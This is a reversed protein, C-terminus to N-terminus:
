SVPLEAICLEAYIEAVQDRTADLSGSNDIVFDALERKEEISMQADIRRKAEEPDAGDRHIQREIQTERPAYVLISAQLGLPDPQGAPQARRGEFLLPIDVVVLAENCAVAAAVRRQMEVRVPPHVLRGLDARADADRFVIAGLATRDLAGSADIVAEGFRKAIQELLPQGAGQLEHVIADADVLVAGLAQFM